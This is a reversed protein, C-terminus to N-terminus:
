TKLVLIQTLPLIIDQVQINEKKLSDICERIDLCLNHITGDLRIKNTMWNFNEMFQKLITQDETLKAHYILYQCEYPDLQYNLLQARRQYNGTYGNILNVNLTKLYNKKDVHKVKDSPNQLYKIM